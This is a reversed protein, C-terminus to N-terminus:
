FPNYDYGSKMELYSISTRLHKVGDIKGLEHLKSKMDAFDRSLVSVELKSGANRSILMEVQPMSAIRSVLEMDGIHKKELSICTLFKTSFGLKHYDIDAFYKKIVGKKELNRIKEELDSQPLNLISALIAPSKKSDNRLESLIKLENQDLEFFDPGLRTPAFVENSFPNFDEVEKHAFTAGGIAFKSYRSHLVFRKLVYFFSEAKNSRLNVLIDFIGSTADASLIEPMSFLERFTSADGVFGKKIWLRLVLGYKYGISGFNIQAKCGRIVGLQQLYSIRSAVADASIGAQKGVEEKSTKCNSRLIRLITRDADSIEITLLRM